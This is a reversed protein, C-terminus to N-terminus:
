LDEPGTADAPEDTVVWVFRSCYTDKLVEATIQADRIRYTNSGPAYALLEFDETGGDGYYLWEMAFSGWPDGVWRQTGSIQGDSDALRFDAWEGPDLFTVAGSARVSIVSTEFSGIKCNLDAPTVSVSGIVQTASGSIDQDIDGDFDFMAPQFQSASKGGVTEADGAEDAYDAQAPTGDEAGLYQAFRYMFAAMQERTVDKEPCFLTNDPPNCGKTVGAAALWEIETEFTSDDDDTFTGGAALVAAPVLAILLLTVLTIILRRRTPSM